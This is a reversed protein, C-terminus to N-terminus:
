CALLDSWALPHDDTGAALDAMGVHINGAQFAYAEVHLLDEMDLAGEGDDMVYCSPLEVEGEEDDGDVVQDNDDEVEDSDVVDDGEDYGGEDDDVEDGDSVSEEKGDDM